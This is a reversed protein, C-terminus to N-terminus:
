RVKFAADGREVSDFREMLGLLHLPPQDPYGTATARLREGIERCIAGTHIRDIQVGDSHQSAM